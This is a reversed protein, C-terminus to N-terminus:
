LWQSSEIRLDHWLILLFLSILHLLPLSVLCSFLPILFLIPFLLLSFLELLVVLFFRAFLSILFSFFPSSYVCSSFFLSFAWERSLKLSSLTPGSFGQSLARLGEDTM